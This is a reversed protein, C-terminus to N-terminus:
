PAPLPTGGLQRLLQEMQTLESQQSNIIAQALTKVYATSAHAVAYRAMPIGGQHHHIMLQLFLIDLAKGHSSELKDMQAPTAMGPMLNGDMAMDDMGPMSAGAMWAMHPQTTAFPLDWADLWGNMQGVQFQQSLEMDTALIKLAPNTTYDREYGAMTVAQEHHTAMDRAFGADVSTGSPTASSGASHGGLWGIAVAAVLAAIALVALLTWRLSAGARPDVAVDSDDLVTV